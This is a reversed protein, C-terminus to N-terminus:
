SEGVIGKPGHNPLPCLHYYSTSLGFLFKIKAVLAQWDFPLGFYEEVKRMLDVLRDFDLKNDTSGIMRKVRNIDGIVDQNLRDVDATM